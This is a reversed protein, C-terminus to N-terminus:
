NFVLECTSSVRRSLSLEQLMQLKTKPDNSRATFSAKKLCVATKLIYTSLEKEEQTGAYNIWELTELNSTLCRPVSSPQNWHPRPNMVPHCQSDMLNCIAIFLADSDDYYQFGVSFINYDILSSIFCVQNIKIVKLSPSDELLHMFLDLWESKCTCVELHKLRNFCSGVPSVVQM